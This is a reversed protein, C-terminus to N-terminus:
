LIARLVAVFREVEEETNYYHVSARVVERLGLERFLVLSGSGRSVSVHIGQGRLRDRVETASRAGPVFTVIGSKQSGVDTVRVGPVQRLRQRM